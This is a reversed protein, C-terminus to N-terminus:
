MLERFLKNEDVEKQQTTKGNADERVEKMFKDLKRAGANSSGNGLESVVDAAVVYEDASLLANKIKPDGEVKFPIKDDMGDGPGKVQGEFMGSKPQRGAALAATLGGTPQMPPQQPMPRQMPVPIEQMPQQPMVLQNLMPQEFKALKNLGFDMLQQMAEKGSKFGTSLGSLGSMVENLNFAEPLGTRPNVTLEGMRRLMNIEPKSMHVLETDGMRGRLALLNSLGSMPANRNVM